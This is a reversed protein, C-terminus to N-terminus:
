PATFLGHAKYGFLGVRSNLIVTVMVKRVGSNVLTHVYRSQVERLRLKRKASIIYTFLM